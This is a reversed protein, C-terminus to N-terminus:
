RVLLGARGWERLATDLQAPTCSAGSAIEARDRTGALQSLIRRAPADPLAITDGNLTTVTPSAEAQVRALSSAMPREGPEAVFARPRAHLHALGGACLTLLVQGLYEAHSADPAVRAHSRASELLENFPLARPWADSLALMAGKALPDATSLNAGTPGKFTEMKSTHAEPQPSVPRADSAVYLGRVSAPSSLMALVKVVM